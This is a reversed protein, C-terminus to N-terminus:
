EAQLIYMDSLKKFNEYFLNKQTLFSSIMILDQKSLFLASFRQLHYVGKDNVTRYRYEQDYSCVFEQCYDRRISTEGM